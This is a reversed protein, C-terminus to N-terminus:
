KDNKRGLAGEQRIIKGNNTLGEIIVTYSASEDATYFDFSAVGQDDTRVDPQWHITTRLDPAQSNRKEPTDYKPAYFEVSTQYGLPLITKIHFPVTNDKGITSGDKLFVVIVGNGGRSGWIATNDADKLVDIQAIDHVNIMDIDDIDMPIDDVVLLPKTSGTFTSTGRITIENGVVNVGPLTRLLDRINTTGFKAIQDETISSSPTSYYLSEKQPKKQEGMIVVEDLAVVRIGNEWTYKQEAKDVYRAFQNKDIEAASVTLLNREPFTEKDPILEMRTMGKKPIASVIYRISDPLEGGRLYFRGFKDTLTNDFYNGKLSMVTVELNEVPKGLLVSKVTGSIEAGIELPSSPRSFRRQTLEAINYRRWGQTRMLLDLAWTSSTNNQFYYAPNEIYGRLDSTLLLQTLINSTSDPVVEKDSTVAVSFSGTLPQGAHDVVTVKNKVLSRAAYNEKNPQYIVQTQDSNNIFVLRESVPNMGADFLILHLVGSPFQDKSFLATNRTLDWAGAFQVIGRTHALLYLEDNQTTEAPRLLSVYLKDKVMNVNLAYGHDVAAPLDFRKSQGKSNQCVVYYSNGKESLHSFSGMGLYDSKIEGMETGNRDYVTGIVNTSQGNSKMAKFAIKCTTGQMISGGEPYFSVDFDDDPLPIKIFQRYPYKFAVVELLLARKRSAAPLNFSISAMGDNNIKVNMMKGNNVAISVSQPVLQVFPTVHFFRFEVNVRRDSEFTFKSDIHVARAQPDGIRITKTCFYNEDLSRMFTTYARLTYDGEPIDDPILLYGHYTNEEHRIKVRTVVTDLPNILEVYVYRSILTPAHTAANAIHARFWIKEGTIYYPKDTHLHIKEQPFVHLQHNFLKVLSDPVNIQGSAVVYFGTLLITLLYKNM